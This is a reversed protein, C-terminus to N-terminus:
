NSSLNTCSCILDGSSALAAVCDYVCCATCGFSNNVPEVIVAGVATPVVVTEPCCIDAGVAM